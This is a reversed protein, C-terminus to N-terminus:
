IDSDFDAFAELETLGEEALEWKGHNWTYYSYAKGMDIMLEQSNGAVITPHLTISAILGTAAILQEESIHKM